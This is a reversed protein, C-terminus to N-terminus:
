KQSIFYTKELSLRELPVNEEPQIGLNKLLNAQLGILIIRDRDQPVGYETANILRKVLM